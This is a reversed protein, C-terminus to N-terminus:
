AEDDKVRDILASISYIPFSELIWSETYGDFKGVFDKPAMKAGQRKLMQLIGTEWDRAILGDMPGRLDILEWGLTEHSKLRDEPYNTIGVQLMGWQPHSLLYLWGSKGQDFGGTLMCTPCGSKSNARHAVRATWTHGEKCIWKQKSSSGHTVSTPDWGSAEAALLPYTTALDNFGPLVVRNTCVPCGSGLRTRSSIAAKWHHGKECEWLRGIKNGPLFKTPDWGYAQLAVAPFLSKLDNFGTLLKHNSCVPCGSNDHTRDKPKSKWEHGKQCRWTKHLSSGATVTSPDWGAAQKAIEPHTVSLAKKISSM